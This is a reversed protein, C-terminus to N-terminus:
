IFLNVLFRRELREATQSCVNKHFDISIRNKWFDSKKSMKFFKAGKENIGFLLQCIIIVVFIPYLCPYLRREGLKSHNQKIRAWIWDKYNKHNKIM